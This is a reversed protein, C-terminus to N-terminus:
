EDGEKDLSKRKITRFIFSRSLLFRAGSKWGILSLLVLVLWSEGAGTKGASQRLVHLLKVIQNTWQITETRQSQSPHNSYSISFWELWTTKCIPYSFFESVRQPSSKTFIREKSQYGTYLRGRFIPNIFSNQPLLNHRHILLSNHSIGEFLELRCLSESLYSECDSM